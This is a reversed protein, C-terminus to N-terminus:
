ADHLLKIEDDSSYKPNKARNRLWALPGGASMNDLSLNNQKDHEDHEHEHEDGDDHEHEHISLGNFSAM